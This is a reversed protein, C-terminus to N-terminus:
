HETILEDTEDHKKRFHMDDMYHKYFVSKPPTMISRRDELYLYGCFCCIPGKM